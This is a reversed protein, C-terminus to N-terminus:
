KSKKAGYREFMRHFVWHDSPTMGIIQFGVIYSNPDLPDQKCWKSRAVFVLATKDSIEKSLNVSLRFDKEIPLPTKTDLKFGGDSIDALHGLLQSKSTDMVQMYYTFTRREIQRHEM